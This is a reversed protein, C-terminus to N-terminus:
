QGYLILKLVFNTGSECAKRLLGVHTQVIIVITVFKIQLYNLKNSMNLKARLNLGFKRQNIRDGFCIQSFFDLEM